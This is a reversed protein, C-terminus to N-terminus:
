SLTYQTGPYYADDCGLYSCATGTSSADRAWVTYLYAGAASSGTNWTFTASPSYSQMVQWSGGPPRIWFQYLPHPCGSATATFTVTTGHVSPSAPSAVDNVSACPQLNLVYSPAPFYADNCGLSSCQTGTSSADRAWVTYLYTGPQLGATNWSYTASASYPQTVQWTGGPPRIWFQYLPHSCGSSSATFTVTTAVAQPSAPSASDNVSTCAQATLSFPQAAFFADNCGLSSCQTGNSSSDRAWVTYLYQGALVNATNWTFTASPSYPQVVQWSGGPARIWFQYLPHTCGSAAGTFTISTSSVQPSAPNPTDSVSTCPQTTLLYNTGPYYTDNCGLGSCATGVSNADRAWVTYMYSGPALGSTNWAFTASSSYKQVVQWSGGPALLWFQYLPHPCGMASATFTVTTSSLQPSGPSPTDTLSTCPQNTLTYPTGPFFGDNCGLSGCVGGPGNGNRVWVSYLYTGSYVSSTDWTFSTVSSFPQVIQWTTSGPALMWFQFQPTGQCTASASFTVMPGPNQPSTPNTTVSPAACPGLRFVYRASTDATAASGQNRAEVQVTYAGFPLGTTNWTWTDSTGYPQMVTMSGGPAQLSFRYTATGACLATAAFAVSTGPIQPTMASPTIAAQSCQGFKLNILSWLEPAGGGYNLAFIGAGRLHDNIILNYKNGLSTVDDYYMERDCGDYPSSWTDWETSGQSDVADRHTHYDTNNSFTREGIADLYTVASWGPNASQYPANPPTNAPATSVCELRGYYPIGMIVQSAPVVARYEASARSDNWYYTSLPSTPGICTGCNIPPNNANDYEMDYAMVFFSDVYNSLAGIDFFGLYNGSSDRYGASGTYTDVSLYSGSPLAARMQSVFSTFLSKSSVQPFGPDNCTVNSGEYDINVGDAGKSRVEYATEQVTYQWRDLASCINRQDPTSDGMIITLVVKTGNAHATSILGPVASNPDEWIARGSDPSALHGDWNVHMGFFAVTSLLSMNWSPYGVTSDGISGAFAFGFVERYLRPNNVAALPASQTVPRPASPGAQAGAVHNAAQQM